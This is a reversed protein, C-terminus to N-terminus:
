VSPKELNLLMVYDDVVYGNGIDECMERDVEFGLKRYFGLAPNYKNVNLEVKEAGASQAVGIIYNVLKKGLGRGHQDPRVYLKHIRYSNEGPVSQNSFSAYGFINEYEHILIFEHKKEFVQSRLAEISYINALMYHIQGSPIIPGYVVPWIEYALQQIIPFDKDTTRKITIM